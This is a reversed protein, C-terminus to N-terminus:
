APSGFAVYRDARVQRVVRREVLLAILAECVRADIGWLRQMQLPTLMLGPMERYDALVRPLLMTCDHSTTVPTVQLM